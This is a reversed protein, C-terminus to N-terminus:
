VRIRVWDLDRKVLSFFLTSTNAIDNKNNKNRKDFHWDFVLTLNKIAIGMLALSMKM